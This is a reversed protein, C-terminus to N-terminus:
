LHSTKIRTRIAQVQEDTITSLIDKTKIFFNKCYSRCKDITEEDVVRNAYYQLNIRAGFSQEIMNVDERTYYESLYQKMFELSCAHIECKIGIKLMLAYLSYYFIYYSTTATWINSKKINSLVTISEEAMELYSEAMNQNPATIEIGHKQKLCWNISVM